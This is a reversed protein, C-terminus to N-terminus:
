LERRIMVDFSGRIVQEVLVERRRHSYQDPPLNLEADLPFASKVGGRGYGRRTIVVEGFHTELNRKSGERRHTRM